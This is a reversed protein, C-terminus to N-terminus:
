RREGSFFQRGARRDLRFVAVRVAEPGPSQLVRRALYEASRRLKLHLRMGRDLLREGGCSFLRRLLSEVIEPGAM